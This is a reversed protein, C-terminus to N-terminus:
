KKIDKCTIKKVFRFLADIINAPTSKCHDEMDKVVCSQIKGLDDCVKETVILNPISNPSFSDPNFKLTANVCNQIADSRSQLCDAGGEAVFMALRDGNKFCAFDGLQQLINSTLNIANNENQELCPKVADYTKKLCERFQPRKKCYKDFVEDMSGTKKSEDLENKFADIDILNELCTQTEDRAIKIKEFTGNGAKKNCREKLADFDDLDPITPVALCTGLILGLVVISESRM